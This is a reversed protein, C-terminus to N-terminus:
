ASRRRLFALGALSGGLLMLSAPEPVEVHYNITTTSGSASATTVFNVNSLDSFDITGGVVTLTPASSCATNAPLPTGSSDGCYTASNTISTITLISGSLTGSFVATGEMIIPSPSIAGIGGDTIVTQTNLTLTGLGDWSGMDTYVGTGVQPQETIGEVAQYAVTLVSLLTSGTGTINTVSAAQAATGFTLAAVAGLLVALKRM